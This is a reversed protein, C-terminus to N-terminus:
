GCASRAMLYSIVDCQGPMHRGICYTIGIVSGDQDRIASIRHLTGKLGMRNDAHFPDGVCTMIIIVVVSFLLLQLLLESELEHHVLYMCSLDQRELATERACHAYAMGKNLTLVHSIPDSAAHSAYASHRRCTMHSACLVPLMQGPMGSSKAM